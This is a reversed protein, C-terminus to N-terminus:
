QAPKGQNTVKKEGRSANRSPCEVSEGWACGTRGKRFGHRVHTRKGRVRSPSPGPSSTRRRGTRGPATSRSRDTWRYRARYAMSGRSIRSCNQCAYHCCMPEIDVFTVPAEGAETLQSLKEGHLPLPPSHGQHLIVLCVDSGVHSDDLVGRTNQPMAELLVNM